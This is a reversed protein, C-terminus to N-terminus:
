ILYRYDNTFNPQKFQKKRLVVFRIHRLISIKFHKLPEKSKSLSLPSNIGAGITAQRCPAQGEAAQLVNGMYVEDVADKPIGARKVAEQIAVTGLQPAPVSSLSGLFSGIPTRVASVIM